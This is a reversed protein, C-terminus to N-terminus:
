IGLYVWYKDVTFRHVNKKNWYLNRLLRANNFYRNGLSNENYLWRKERTNKNIWPSRSQRGEWGQPPLQTPLQRRGRMWLRMSVCSIRPLSFVVKNGNSYLWIWFGLIWQFLPVSDHTVLWSVNLTM